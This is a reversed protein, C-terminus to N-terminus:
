VWTGIKSDAGSASIPYINFYTGTASIWNGGPAASLTYAPIFTGGANISVTGEVRLTYYATAAAIAGTWVTNTAQNSQGSTSLAGPTNVTTVNSFGGYVINNLTATGGFSQGITHSTAGVTKLM